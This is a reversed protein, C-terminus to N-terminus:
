FTLNDLLTVAHLIVVNRYYVNVLGPKKRKKEKLLYSYRLVCDCSSSALLVVDDAFLLSEFRLTVLASM